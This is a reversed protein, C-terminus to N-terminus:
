PSELPGGGWAFVESLAYNEDNGMFTVRWPGPEPKQEDAEHRWVHVIIWDTSWRTEKAWYYGARTPLAGGGEAETM